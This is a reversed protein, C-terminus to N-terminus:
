RYPGRAGGTVERVTKGDVPISEPDQTYFETYGCRKCIYAQILGADIPEGGPLPYGAINQPVHAIRWPQVRGYADTVQDVRSLILIHDHHCKPCSHSQRM